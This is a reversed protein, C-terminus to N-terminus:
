ELWIEKVLAQLGNVSDFPETKSLLHGVVHPDHPLLNALKIAVLQSRIEDIDWKTLTPLNNRAMEQYADMLPLQRALIQFLEVFREAQEQDVSSLAAKLLPSELNVEYYFGERDKLKHWLHSVDRENVVRGRFTHVRKGKQLLPEIMTKLHAKFSPPPEARSKKIDIQWLDDLASPIDVRIRTQKTLENMAALGFWQGRSLLRSNRYIYFGQFDRMQYSLDPRVREEASLGSVHPLTFATFKVLSNGVELIEEPSIQTKTNTTLFPDLPLMSVGNVTISCRKGSGALFRHYTFSLHENLRPVASSLLASIDSADGLLLDLKQWLVLTGSKQVLLKDLLSNEPLEEFNLKVLSWSRSEIVLDLDWRLGFVETNTKSIVTLQRGQSLSATKLGLGFRGLRGDSGDSSTGAIRLAEVASEPSMGSGDDLIAVFQGKVVDVDVEIHRAGADISNDVIDAVASEFSYGISRMSNLLQTSPEVIIKEM